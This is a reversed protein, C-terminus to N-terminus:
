LAQEAWKVIREVLLGFLGVCLCIALLFGFGGAAMLAGLGFTM